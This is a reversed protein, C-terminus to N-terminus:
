ELIRYKSQVFGNAFSRTEIHQLKLDENLPGFLPIGQGIIIPIRTIIMEQILGANLFGQITKGGDIYLHKAGSEELEKFLQTPSGSRLEVTEPM